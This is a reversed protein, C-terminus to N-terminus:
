ELSDIIADVTGQAMDLAVYANPYEESEDKMRRLRGEGVPMWLHFYNGIVKSRYDDRALRQETTECVERINIRCGRYDHWINSM